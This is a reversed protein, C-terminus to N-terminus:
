GIKLLDATDFVKFKGPIAKADYTAELVETSCISKAISVQQGNCQFTVGGGLPLPTAPMSAMGQEITQATVDGTLNPLAKVLAIISIFGGQAVGGTEVGKAYKKMVALYQQYEKNKPDTNTATLVKVGKYGGNTASASSSDVCQPIAIVPGKFGVTRIAKVASTCFAANGVMAFAGDGNSVGAQVQPTMDAEGPPVVIVDPTVNANKYFLPAAAKVPGSAAPVDTVLIGVKKVGADRAVGAPGALASGIGNTLVYVSEAPGALVTQDISGYQLFPIGAAKVGTYITGSQGSVPTIVIPVKAQVMNTACDTAGAPTQKTECVNLAIKHGALGGLYDNAYKVAAQAGKIEPTNDIADSKGDSVLGLTVVSGTAKKKTGLPDKAATGANAAGASVLAASVLLASCVVATLMRRGM